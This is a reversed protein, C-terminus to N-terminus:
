TQSDFDEVKNLTNINFDKELAYLQYDTIVFGTGETPWNQYKNHM